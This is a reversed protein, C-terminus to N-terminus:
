PELSFALLPLSSNFRGIHRRVLLFVFDIPVSFRSSLSLMAGM